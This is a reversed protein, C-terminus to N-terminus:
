QYKECTGANYDPHKKPNSIHFPSGNYKKHAYKCTKCVIDPHAATPAEAKPATAKHYEEQSIKNTEEWTKDKREEAM